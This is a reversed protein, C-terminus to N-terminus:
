STTAIVEAFKELPTMCNLSQQPRRNLEKAIADLKVASQVPM